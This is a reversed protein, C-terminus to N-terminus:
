PQGFGLNVTKQELYGLVRHRDATIVTRRQWTGYDKKRMSITHEGLSLVQSYPTKGVYVTDIYVDSGIPNSWFEVMASQVAPKSMPESHASELLPTKPPESPPNDVNCNVYYVSLPAVFPKQQPSHQNSARIDAVVRELMAERSRTSDPRYQSVVSGQQNYARIFLAKYRDAYELNMTATAATNVAGIYSYDWTGGYSSVVAENASPPPTRTYTHATPTLGDFSSELTSFVIVYNNKRPDPIQSFCLDTSDKLHKKDGIWKAAFKPIAPVPQGGEAIAFSVNKSCPPAASDSTQGFAVPSVLSMAVLVWLLKMSVKGSRHSNAAHKLLCADRTNNAFGLAPSWNSNKIKLRYSM